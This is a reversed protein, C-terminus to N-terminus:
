YCQHKSKRLIAPLETQEEEESYESAELACQARIDNSFLAIRQELAQELKLARKTFSHYAGFFRYTNELMLRIDAIVDAIRSYVRKSVKVRIDEIWIPKSIM